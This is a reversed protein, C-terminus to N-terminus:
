TTQQRASSTMRSMCGVDAARKMQVNHPSTASVDKPRRSQVHPPRAHSTMQRRRVFPRKVDENSTAVRGGNIILAVKSLSM